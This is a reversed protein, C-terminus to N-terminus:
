LPIARIAVNIEQGSMIENKKLVRRSIGVSKENVQQLSTVCTHLAVQRGVERKDRVREQNTDQATDAEHTQRQHQQQAGGAENVVLPVLSM